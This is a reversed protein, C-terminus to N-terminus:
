SVNWRYELKGVVSLLSGGASSLIHDSKELRFNLVKSTNETVIFVEARANTVFNTFTDNERM